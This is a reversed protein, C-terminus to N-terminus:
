TIQMCAVKIGGGVGWSECVGGDPSSGITTSISATGSIVESM